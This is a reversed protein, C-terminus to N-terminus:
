RPPYRNVRYFNRVEASNAQYRPKRKDNMNVPKAAAHESPLTSVITAGVGVAAARLLVRRDIKREPVCNMEVVGTEYPPALSAHQTSVPRSRWKRMYARLTRLPISSIAAGGHLQQMWLRCALSAFADFHSEASLHEFRFVCM